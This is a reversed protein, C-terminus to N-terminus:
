LYKRIHSIESLELNSCYFSRGGMYMDEFKKVEILFLKYDDEEFVGREDTFYDIREDESDGACLREWDSIFSLGDDFSEFSAIDIREEMFQCYHVIFLKPFEM